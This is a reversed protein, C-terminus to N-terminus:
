RPTLLERMQALKLETSVLKDHASTSASVTASAYLHARGSDEVQCARLAAFWEGDGQADIWGVPAGFRGRDVTGARSIIRRAAGVPSGTVSALPHLAAALELSSHGPASAGCIDTALELSGPLAFAFPQEPVHMGTMFLGLSAAAEAVAREHQGLRDGDSLLRAARTVEDVTDIDQVSGALIRSVALGGSRRLMVDPTAGVLGAVLYTWSGGFNRRWRELVWRPDLGGEALAEIRRLLVIRDVRGAAIFEEAKNFRDIWHRNAEEDDDFSIGTPANPTDHREPLVPDVRDYGLRTIWCRGERRGLVVEPVIFCSHQASREPDYTFSGYAIPGTGFAGPMETENEIRASFKGWWSDAETMSVDDLRAMEGLAIFGERGRLFAAGSGDLFSTLPGPDKILATSARM